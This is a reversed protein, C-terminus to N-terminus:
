SDTPGPAEFTATLRKKTRVVVTGALKDHWGQKRPDWGVWAFGLFCGLISVYYGFYRGVMQGASPKGGTRADVIRASIAMKGPTAQRAIWFLLVAGIPFVYSILLDAPGRVFATGFATSSWYDDGYFLHILPLTVIIMLVTDIISAGVRAWFGVYELEPAAEAESM